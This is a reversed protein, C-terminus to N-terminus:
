ISFMIVSKLMEDPSNNFVLMNGVAFINKKALSFNFLDQFIIGVHTLSIFKLKAMTVKKWGYKFPSGITPKEQHSTM